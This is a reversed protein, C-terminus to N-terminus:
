KIESLETIFSWASLLVVVEDYHAVVEELVEGKWDESVRASDQAFPLYELDNWSTCTHNQFLKFDWSTCYELIETFPMDLCAKWPDSVPPSSKLSLPFPPLGLIPSSYFPALVQMSEVLTCSDPTATNVLLGPSVSFLYSCLLWLSWPPFTDVTGMSYSLFSYSHISFPSHSVICDEM